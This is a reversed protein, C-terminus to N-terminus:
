INSINRKHARPTKPMRGVAYGFAHIFLAALAAQGSAFSAHGAQQYKLYAGLYIDSIMQLVAGTFLSARRGLANVFFFSAILTFCLKSFSYMGSLFLAETSSSGRGLLRLIPVVYSTISNAGSLQALAYTLLSQQLRRLNAKVTFMERLANMTHSSGQRDLELENQVSEQIARLEMQVRPHHAPLGRLRVLTAVAEEQRGTIWQWRPSECLFFSAAMVLAFFLVPSFM